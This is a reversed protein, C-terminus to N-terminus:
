VKGKLHYVFALVEAVAKYLEPPIVAGIEVNAYLMRALPKNEVIEVDNEKAIEKIKKALYDAGKALVIPANYKEQDYQIAVAYHTPNTIVVDAKPLEQMMRRQSAERMRQRQKSKVQPDGESEKMEDKVEQKTMMMDTHFKRKQYIFDALAIIMYVAAVRIGMNITLNGMLAIGQRLSMDYLLYISSKESKFYSYVVYGILVIKAISKLLEFVSQMSFLKQIGQLPNMKSFNPRLPETAVKFGVQLINCILAIVVGAILFPMMITLTQMLMNSVVAHIAAEPVQGGVMKITSPIQQYVTAFFSEFHQGISDVYVRLLIFFALLEVAMSIERSKAVQGKKRADDLKKGTPEETKEGGPGEKAFFQLDYEIILRKKEEM